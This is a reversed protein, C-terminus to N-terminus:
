FRLDKLAFSSKGVMDIAHTANTYPSQTGTVLHLTATERDYWGNGNDTEM